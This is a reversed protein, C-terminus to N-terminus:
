AGIDYFCGTATGDRGVKGFTASRLGYDQERSSRRQDQPGYGPQQYQPSTESLTSFSVCRCQSLGSLRSPSYPFLWSFLITSAKATDAGAETLRNESVRPSDICKV